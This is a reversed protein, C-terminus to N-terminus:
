PLLNNEAYRFSSYRFLQWGSGHWAIDLTPSHSANKLFDIKHRVFNCRLQIKWEFCYYTRFSNFVKLHNIRTAAFSSGKRIINLSPLTDLNPSKQVNNTVFKSEFTVGFCQKVKQVIKFLIVNHLFEQPM